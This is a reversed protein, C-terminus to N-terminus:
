TEQAKLPQILDSKANALKRLGIGKSPIIKSKLFCVKIQNDFNYIKTLDYYTSHRGSM